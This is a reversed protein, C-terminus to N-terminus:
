HSLTDVPTIAQLARDAFGYSDIVQGQRYPRIGARLAQRIKPRAVEYLNPFNSNAYVQKWYSAMLVSNSMVGTERIASLHRRLIVQAQEEPTLEEFKKNRRISQTKVPIKSRNLPSLSDNWEQPDRNSNIKQQFSSSLIASSPLPHSGSKIAPPVSLEWPPHHDLSPPDGSYVTTELAACAVILFWVNPFRKM